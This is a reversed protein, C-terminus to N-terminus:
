AGPAEGSSGSASTCVKRPQQKRWPGCKIGERSWEARSHWGGKWDWRCTGARGSGGGAWGLAAKLDAPLCLGFPWHMQVLCQESPKWSCGAGGRSRLGAASGRSVPVTVLVSCQDCESSSLHLGPPDPLALFSSYPLTVGIYELWCPVPVARPPPPTHPRSPYLPDICWARMELCWRPQCTM